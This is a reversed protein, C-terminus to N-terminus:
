LGKEFNLFVGYNEFNIYIFNHRSKRFHTTMNMKFAPPTNYMQQTTIVKFDEPPINFFILFQIQSRFVSPLLTFKQTTVIISIETEVDYWKRRNNFFSLLEPNREGAKLDAVLDDIVVLVKEIPRIEKEETIKNHVWTLNLSNEWRDSLLELRAVPRPSLFLVLDFKKYLGNKNKLLNEILTSKGSSPKGVILGTFSDPLMEIEYKYKNVPQQGEYIDFTNFSM